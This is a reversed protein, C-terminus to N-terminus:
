MTRSKFSNESFHSIRGINVVEECFSQAYGVAKICNERMKKNKMNRIEVLKIFLPLNVIKFDNGKIYLEEIQKQTFGKRLFRVREESTEFM